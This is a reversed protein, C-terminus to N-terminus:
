SMSAPPAAASGASPAASPEASNGGQRNYYPLRGNNAEQVSRALVGGM